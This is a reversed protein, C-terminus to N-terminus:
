SARKARSKFLYLVIFFPDRSVGGGNTYYIRPLVSIIRVCHLRHSASHAGIVTWTSVHSQSCPRTSITYICCLTWSLFFAVNFILKLLFYNNTQTWIHKYNLCDLSSLYVGNFSNRLSICLCAFCPWKQRCFLTSFSCM